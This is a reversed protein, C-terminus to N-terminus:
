QAMWHCQAKGLLAKYCFHGLGTKDSGYNLPSAESITFIGALFCLFFRVMSFWMFFRVADLPYVVMHFLLALPFFASVVCICGPISTKLPASM